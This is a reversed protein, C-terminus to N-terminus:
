VAVEVKEFVGADIMDLVTCANTLCRMCAHDGVKVKLVKAIRECESGNPIILESPDGCSACNPINM